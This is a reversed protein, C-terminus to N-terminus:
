GTIEIGGGFGNEVQNQLLPLTQSVPTGTPNYLTTPIWFGQLTVGVGPLIVSSEEEPSPPCPHAFWSWVTGEQPTVSVLSDCTLSDDDAQAPLPPVLFLSFLLVGLIWASLSTFSGEKSRGERVIRM